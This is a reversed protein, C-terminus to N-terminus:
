SCNLMNAGPGLRGASIGPWRSGKLSAELFKVMHFYDVWDKKRKQTGTLIIEKVSSYNLKERM